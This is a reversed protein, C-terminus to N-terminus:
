ISMQLRIEIQQLRVLPVGDAGGCGFETYFIRTGLGSLHVQAIGKLSQALKDTGYEVSSSYNQPENKLLSAGELAYQGTNGLHNLIMASEATEEPTAKGYIGKSTKKDYHISRAEQVFNNGVYKCNKEIYTRFELLKKNIDKTFKDVKLKKKKKNSLNPSM